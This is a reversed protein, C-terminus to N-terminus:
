LCLSLLNFQKYRHPLCTHVPHLNVALILIKIDIDDNGVLRCATLQSPIIWSTVVEAMQAKVLTDAGVM